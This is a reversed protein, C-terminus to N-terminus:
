PYMYEEPRRAMEPLLLKSSNTFLSRSNDNEEGEGASKCTELRGGVKHLLLFGPHERLGQAVHPNDDGDHIHGEGAEGHADERDVIWEV